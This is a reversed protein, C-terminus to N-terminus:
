MFYEEHTLINNNYVGQAIKKQFKKKLLYFKMSSSVKCTKNSVNAIPIDVVDDDVINAKEKTILKDSLKNKITEYKNIERQSCLCFSVYDKINSLVEEDLWNLNVFIGNNNHTYSCNNKYIIKFIADIETQCLKDINDQIYKCSEINAM